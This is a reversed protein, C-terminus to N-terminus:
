PVCQIKLANQSVNQRKHVVVPLEAYFSVKFADCVQCENPGICFKVAVADNRCNHHVQIFALRQHTRLYEQHLHFSSRGPYPVFMAFFCRLLGGFAWPSRCTYPVKTILSVLYLNVHNIEYLWLLCRYCYDM